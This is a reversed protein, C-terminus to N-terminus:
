PEILSKPKANKIRDLRAKVLEQKSFTSGRKASLKKDTKKQQKLSYPNSFEKDPTRQTEYRIGPEQSFLPGGYLDLPPM